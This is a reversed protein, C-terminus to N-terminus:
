HPPTQPPSLRVPRSVTSLRGAVIGQLAGLASGILLSVPVAVLVNELNWRTMASISSAQPTLTLFAFASAFGYFAAPVNNFPEFRSALSSSHHSDPQSPPRFQVAFTCGDRPSSCLLLGRWSWVSFWACQVRTSRRAIRARIIM